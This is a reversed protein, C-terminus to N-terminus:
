ASRNATILCSIFIYVYIYNVFVIYQSLFQDILEHITNQNFLAIYDNRGELTEYKDTWSQIHFMIEQFLVQYIVHKMHHTVTWILVFYPFCQFYQLGLALFLKNKM